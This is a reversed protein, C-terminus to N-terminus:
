IYVTHAAIAARMHGEAACIQRELDAIDERTNCAQAPAFVPGLNASPDQASAAPGTAWAAWRAAGASTTRPYWRVDDWLRQLRLKLPHRLAELACATREAMIAAEIEARDAADRPVIGYDSNFISRVYIADPVIERHGVRDYGSLAVVRQNGYADMTLREAAMCVLDRTEGVVDLTIAM